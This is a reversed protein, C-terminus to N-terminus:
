RFNIKRPIENMELGGIIIVFLKYGTATLTTILTVLLILITLGVSDNILNGNAYILNYIKRVANIKKLPGDLQKVPKLPLLHFNINDIIKIPPFTIVTEIASDLCELQHNVMGVYFVYKCVIMILFFIPLIGIFIPLIEMRYQSFGVSGHLSVFLALMVFFRKWMTKKLSNFDTKVDFVERLIEVSMKLNVFFKKINHTSTFSQILSTCVVLVFGFNMSNQIAFMLMNKATITGTLTEREMILFCITLISILILLIVLHMIRFVTPRNMFDIKELNKLSFYQFGLLEFIVLCSNLETEM